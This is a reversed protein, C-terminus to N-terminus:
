LSIHFGLTEYVEDFDGENDEPPIVIIVEECANGKKEFGEECLCVWDERTAKEVCELCKEEDLCKVCM